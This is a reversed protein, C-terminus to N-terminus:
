RSFSLASIADISADMAARAFVVGAFVAVSSALDVAPCYSPVDLVVRSVDLEVTCM